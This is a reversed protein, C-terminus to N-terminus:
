PTFGSRMADPLVSPPPRGSAATVPRASTMSAGCMPPSPPVNAPLGTEQAAAVTTMLLQAARLHECGPRAEALPM